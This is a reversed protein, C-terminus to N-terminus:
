RSEILIKDEAARRDYDKSSLLGTPKADGTKVLNAIIPYKRRVVTYLRKGNEHKENRHHQIVPKCVM